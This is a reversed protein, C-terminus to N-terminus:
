ESAAGGQAADDAIQDFARTAGRKVPANVVLRYIEVAM